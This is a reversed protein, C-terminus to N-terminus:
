RPLLTKFDRTLLSWPWLKEQTTLGCFPSTGSRLIAFVLFLSTNFCIYRSHRIGTSQLTLSVPLYVFTRLILHFVWKKLKQIMNAQILINMTGKIIRGSPLHLLIFPVKDECHSSRWYREMLQRNAHFCSALAKLAWRCLGTNGAPGGCRRVTELQDAKQLEIRIPFQACVLATSLSLLFSFNSSRLLSYLLNYPFLLPYHLSCYDSIHFVM